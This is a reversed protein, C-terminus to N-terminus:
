DELYNLEDQSQNGFMMIIIAALDESVGADKLRGKITEAMKDADVDRMVEDATKETSVPSVNAKGSVSNKIQISLFTKTSNEFAVKLDTDKISLKGDIVLDYGNFLSAVGAVTTNTQNTLNILATIQDAKITIKGSFNGANLADVDLDTVSFTFSEDNRTSIKFVGTIKSGNKAGSSSVKLTQTSDAGDERAQSATVTLSLAYKDETEAFRYTIEADTVDNNKVTFTFGILDNKENTVLELVMANKSIDKEKEEAINAIAKDISGQYSKYAEAADAGTATAFDEIVKKIDTDAKVQKLLNEAIEMVTEETITVTVFKAKVTVNEVTLDKEEENADKLTDLLTNIYKVVLQKLTDKSPLANIFDNLAKSADKASKDNGEPNTPVKAPVKFFSESIVPIQAFLNEADAVITADIIDKNNLMLSIAASRLNETLNAESKATISNLTSLDVSTGTSLALLGGLLSKLEDGMTITIETAQKAGNLTDKAEEYSALAADASKNVQKTWVYNLHEEPTKFSTPEQNGCATLAVLSAIMVLALVLSIIKKM